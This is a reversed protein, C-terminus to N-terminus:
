RAIAFAIALAALLGSKALLHVLLYSVAVAGIARMALQSGTIRRVPSELVSYSSLHEMSGDPERERLIEGRQFDGITVRADGDHLDSGWGSRRGDGPMRVTSPSDSRRRGDVALWVRWAICLLAFIALFKRVHPPANGHGGRRFDDQLLTVLWSGAYVLVILKALANRGLLRALM